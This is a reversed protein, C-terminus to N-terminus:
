VARKQKCCEPMHSDSEFEVIICRFTVMFYVICVTIGGILDVILYEGDLGCERGVNTGGLILERGFVGEHNILKGTGDGENTTQNTHPVHCRM